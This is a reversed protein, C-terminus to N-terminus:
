VHGEVVLGPGVQAAGEEAGALGGLQEGELAVVGGELRADVRAAGVGRELVAARDVRRRQGLLEQRPVRTLVGDGEAVVVVVLVVVVADHGVLLLADLVEQGGHGPLDLALSKVRNLLYFKGVSKAEKFRNTRNCSINPIM